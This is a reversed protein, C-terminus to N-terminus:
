KKRKVGTAKGKNLGKGKNPNYLQTSTPNIEFNPIPPIETLTNNLLHHILISFVNKNYFFNNFLKTFVKFQNTTSAQTYVDFEIDTKNSGENDYKETIEKLKKNRINNNEKGKFKTYVDNVEKQRKKRLEKQEEYRFVNNDNYFIGDPLENKKRAIYNFLHFYQLSDIQEVSLDESGIIKYVSNEDFIKISADINLQLYIKELLNALGYAQLAESYTGSKKQITVEKYM